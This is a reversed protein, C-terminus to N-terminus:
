FGSDAPVEQSKQRKEPAGTEEGFKWTLNFTFIRSERKRYFDSTFNFDEMNIKFRRNDFADTFGVGLSLKKKYVDKKFGLDLGFMPLIMGQPTVRGTMYNYSAQIEANKWFSYTFIAKGTFMLNSNKYDNGLVSGAITQSFLNGNLTTKIKKLINFRAIIEAGYSRNYDLNYFSVNSIGLSDVTRFRWIVSNTQRFYLNTTLTVLKTNHFASIEVADTLEPRLKPNGSFINYPDNVNVFPNIQNQNPRNIRRSYGIQIDPFNYKENLNFVVFGSPFLNLYEFNIPLNGSLQKGNISTQEARFGINYKILKIPSHTLMLYAASVNENYILQNKQALNETWANLLYDFTDIKFDNNFMRATYKLGTELKLYDNLPKTYDLQAVHNMFNNTNLNFLKNPSVQTSTQSYIDLNNQIVDIETTRDTNSLNYSASINHSNSKFTKKFLLGMDYNLSNRKEINDIKRLRNLELNRNSFRIDTSESNNDYNNSVLYNLSWLYPKSPKFDINGSFAGNLNLNKSNQYQNLFYSSDKFINLRENYSRGWIDNQRFSVTNSTSWKGKNYNYNAAGNYKNNNGVGLTVSGSKGKTKIQKLTINIYGSIGEADQKAGPNTNVEISEANASPIQMLMNQRDIGSLSSQKGNIYILVNESGRLSINGEGDVSIAPIQRLIDLATGGTALASNEVAYVKKDVEIKDVVETKKAKVGVGGISIASSELLIFGLDINNQNFVNLTRTQSKYGLKSFLVTVNNGSFCINFYGLSDSSGFAIIKKLNNTNYIQIVVNNLVQNSASDKLNGTACFSNQADIKFSFFLTSILLISFKAM